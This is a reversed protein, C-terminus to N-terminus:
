NRIKLLVIEAYSDAKHTSKFNALEKELFRYDETSFKGEGGWFAVVDGSGEFDISENKDPINAIEYQFTIDADTSNSKRAMSDSGRMSGAIKSKYLGFIKPDDPLRDSESNKLQTELSQIASESYILNIIRCTKFIARRIEHEMNYQGVYINGVCDKCLSFYGNQDLYKDAASYFEKPPKKNMCKM